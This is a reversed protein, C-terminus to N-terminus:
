NTEHRSNFQSFHTLKLNASHRTQRIKASINLFNKRFKERFLRFLIQSVILVVSFLYNRKVKKKIRLYLQRCKDVFVLFQKLFCIASSMIVFAYNPLSKFMPKAIEFLIDSTKLKLFRFSKDSSGKLWTIKVIMIAPFDREYKINYWNTRNRPYQWFFLQLSLKDCTMKTLM